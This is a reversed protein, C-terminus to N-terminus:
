REMIVGRSPTVSENYRYFFLSDSVGDGSDYDHEGVFEFNRMDYLVVMALSM